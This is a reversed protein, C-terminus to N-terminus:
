HKKTINNLNRMCEGFDQDELQIDITVKNKLFASIAESACKSCIYTKNDKTYLHVDGIAPEGCWSCCPVNTQIEMPNNYLPVSKGNKLHIIICGNGNEIHDLESNFLHEIQNIM